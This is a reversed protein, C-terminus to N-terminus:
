SRRGIRPPAARRPKAKGPYAPVTIAEIKCHAINELRSRLRSEIQDLPQLTTLITPLRWDFRYLLIEYLKERAWASMNDHMSLDDLVLVPAGKLEAMRRDHSVHSGPHFTARLHNLLDGATVFSCMAASLNLHHAIAAALHTKGSGAAGMLVLWGQPNEAYSLAAQVTVQLRQLHEASLGESERLDFTEFTMERYRGLDTLDTEAWALVSSRRDPLRMQIAQTLTTDLLRSRIRPELSTVDRNTTIITPLRMRHRDNFLQYLKETAWATPSEAGLDDLILLRARRINEFMEDYSIEASPAYTSRLHDLLDPATIFLVPMRQELQFNGVAAALHTKGTGYSGEFLLWGEPSEAYQYARVAASNLMRRQAESLTSRRAQNMDRFISQLHRSDHDLLTYDIEFASFTKDVYLDLNGLTRLRAMERQRHQDTQCVCPFAKGFDPHGIPVDKTILGIGGCISCVTERM